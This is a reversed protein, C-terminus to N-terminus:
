AQDVPPVDPSYSEEMEPGDLPDEEEESGQVGSVAELDDSGGDQSTKPEEDPQEVHADIVYDLDLSKAEFADIVDMPTPM